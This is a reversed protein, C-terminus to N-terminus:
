ASRRLREPTFRVPMREIGNIFISRLREIAGRSIRCAACRTM